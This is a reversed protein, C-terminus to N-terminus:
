DCQIMPRKIDNPLRCVYHIEIEVTKHIRKGLGIRRATYRAMCGNEILYPRMNKVDWECLIPDRGCALETACALAFIGCDSGNPQKQINM